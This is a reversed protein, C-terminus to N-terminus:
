EFTAPGNQVSSRRFLSDIEKDGMSQGATALSAHFQRGIAALQSGPWGGAALRKSWPARALGKVSRRGGKHVDAAM